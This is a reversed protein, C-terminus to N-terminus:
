RVRFVSKFLRRLMRARESLLTQHFVALKPSFKWTQSGRDCPQNWFTFSSFSGRTFTGTMLPKGSCLVGSVCRNEIGASGSGEKLIKFHLEFLIGWRDVPNIFFLFRYLVRVAIHLFLYSYKGIFSTNRCRFVWALTILFVSPAILKNSGRMYFDWSLLQEPREFAVPAPGSSIHNEAIHLVELWVGSIVFSLIGEM